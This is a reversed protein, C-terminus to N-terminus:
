HDDVLDLVQRVRKKLWSASLGIGTSVGDPISLMVAVETRGRGVPELRVSLHGNQWLPSILVLHERPRYVLIEIEDQVPQGGDLAFRVGYRAGSGVVGHGIREAWAVERVFRPYVEPDSLVQWVRDPNHALVKAVEVLDTSMSVGDASAEGIVHACM